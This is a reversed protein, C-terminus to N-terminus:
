IPDRLSFTVKAYVTWSIPQTATQPHDQTVYYQVGQHLVDGGESTSLWRNRKTEAVFGGATKGLAVAAVPRCAIRIPTTFNRLKCGNDLLVQNESTPISVNQYASNQVSWCIRPISPAIANAGVPSAQDFSNYNPLLMFVVRRICYQNYLGAYSGAQPLNNFIVSLSDGYQGTPSLSVDGLNCTETFTPSPNMARVRTPMRAYRRIRNSPKRRYAPRRAFRRRYVM